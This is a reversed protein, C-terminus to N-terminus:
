ADRDSELANNSQMSKAYQVLVKAAEVLEPRAATDIEALEADNRALAAASWHERVAGLPLHDTDSEHAVFPLFAESDLEGLQDRFYVVRRSTETAQLEGRAFQDLIQLLESWQSHKWQSATMRM